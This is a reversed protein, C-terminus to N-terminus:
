MATITEYDLMTSKPLRSLSKLLRDENHMKNQLVVVNQM